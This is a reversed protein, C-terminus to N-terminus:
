VSVDCHLIRLALMSAYLTSRAVSLGRPFNGLRDVRNIDNLLGESRFIEISVVEINSEISM